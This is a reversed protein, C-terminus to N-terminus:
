FPEEGLRLRETGRRRFGLFAKMICQIHLICLFWDSLSHGPTKIPLRNTLLRYAVSLPVGYGVVVFFFGFSQKAPSPYCICFQPYIRSGSFLGHL